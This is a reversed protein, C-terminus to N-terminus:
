QILIFWPSSTLKPADSLLLTNFTVGMMSLYKPYTATPTSPEVPTTGCGPHVLAASLLVFVLVVGSKLVWPRGDM